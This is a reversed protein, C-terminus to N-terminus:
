RSASPLKYRRLQVTQPEGDRLTVRTAHDVLPEYFTPDRTDESSLDDLAIVYYDGPPLSSIIGQRIQRMAALMGPNTPAPANLPGVPTPNSVRVGISMYRSITWRAKEASFALLVYDQVTEGRDGTVEASLETNRTTFTVRVDRVSQNNQIEIGRELLDASRYIASRAHWRGDAGAMIVCTGSVGEITFTLDPNVKTM